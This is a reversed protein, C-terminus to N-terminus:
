CSQLSLANFIITNTKVGHKGYKLLILIIYQLMTRAIKSAACEGLIEVSSHTRQTWKM